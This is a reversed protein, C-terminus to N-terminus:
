ELLKQATPYCEIWKLKLNIWNRPSLPPVDFLDFTPLFSFRYVAYGKGGVIQVVKNEAFEIWFEANDKAFIQIGSEVEKWLPCLTLEAM